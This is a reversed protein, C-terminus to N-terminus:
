RSRKRVPIIKWEQDPNKLILIENTTVFLRGQIMSHRTSMAFQTVYNSGGVQVTRRDVIFDTDYKSMFNSLQIGDPRGAENWRAYGRLLDLHDLTEYDQQISNRFWNLVGIAVSIFIILVIVIKTLIRKNMM